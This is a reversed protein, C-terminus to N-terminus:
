LSRRFGAPTQRTVQKFQRCFFYTDCYGLREAVAKVPLQGEALLAKAQDIRRLMRYRAPSVGVEEAFRKRFREYSLHFSKAVATLDLDSELREELLASAARAFNKGDSTTRARQDLDTIQALLIHLRATLIADSPLENSLFEHILSDFSSILSRELGPSLVPNDRSILGERELEEFVRGQFVLFSEHWEPVPYYTHPMGPFLVILDGPNIVFAGNSHDSYHGGGGTVYVIAFDPLIRDVCVNKQPKCYLHGAGVLAGRNKNVAHRFRTRSTQPEATVPRIYKSTPGTLKHFRQPAAGMFIVM